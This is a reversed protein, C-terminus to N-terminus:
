RCLTLLKDKYIRGTGINYILVMRRSVLYVRAEDLDYATMDPISQQFITTSFKATLNVVVHDSDVLLVYKSNMKAKIKHENDHRESHGKLNAGTHFTGIFKGNHM